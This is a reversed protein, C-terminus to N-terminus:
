RYTKVRHLTKIIKFLETFSIESVGIYDKALLKDPTTKGYGGIKDIAAYNSIKTREGTNMQVFVPDLPTNKKDDERSYGPKFHVKYLITDSTAETLSENLFEEFTNLNKM